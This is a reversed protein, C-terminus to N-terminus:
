RREELLTESVPKGRVPVPKCSRRRGPKARVEPVPSSLLGAARLAQRFEEETARPHPAPFLAALAAQLQKQETPSLQQIQKVLRAVVATAM